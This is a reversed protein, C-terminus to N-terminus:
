ELERRTLLRRRHLLILAGAAAVSGYELLMVWGPLIWPRGIARLHWVYYTPLISVTWITISLTSTSRLFPLMWLLYWPYVVPACFLSVAMPWVFADASLEASSRRMRIATAFGVFMALAALTQPTIFQELAAFLLDNFRFSQVYTSLSGLQIRGHNLFPVYLLGFALVALVADRIRIRKWYLPLLVVPLFKVAVALALAVAAITRQHRLFAAFSILLLLAGVIDIHGSGAVETALLPNWAFALVWHPVRKELRLADLLILVMALECFVFTVKFAFVSEDIATVARFFLLAGPPYPTPLDPHNLTRTESTHLSALAPDSPILLYPNYGLRQARGDWVYRHIDDDAGPSVRLFEVHWVAALLLGTIVVHQPLRPTASFERIALLYAIGAVGLWTLFYAGGRDAFNRGCFTLAILLTVGLAYVRWAAPM